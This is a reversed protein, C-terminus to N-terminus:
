FITCCASKKDEVVAVKVGVAQGDVAVVVNQKSLASEDNINGDPRREYPEEEITLAAAKKAPEKMQQMQQKQETLGKKVV